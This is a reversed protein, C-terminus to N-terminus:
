YKIRPIDPDTFINKVNYNIIVEKPHEREIVKSLDEGLFRLDVVIIKKYNETLFPVLCNAFSDKIVLLTEDKQANENVIETIGNNGYLFFGYKDRTSLKEFDFLGDKIEGNVKISTVSPEYCIISEGETGIKKCKSFHTGIFDESVTQKKFEAPTLNKEKCYALYAEYAGETTWHHDTKYYLKEEPSEKYKAKLVADLDIFDFGSSVLYDQWKELAERQDINFSGAPLKDNLVEYASPALLLTKNILPYKEGFEKLSSLNLELRREDYSYFKDFMYGDSGYIIGNNEIKLLAAECTSKITIWTDRMPFQENTYKEFRQAFGTPGSDMLGKLTLKPRESFKINELESYDKHPLVLDGLSFIIIIVSFILLVPYKFIEKLKKM